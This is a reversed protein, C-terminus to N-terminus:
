EYPEKWIRPIAFHMSPRDGRVDGKWIRCTGCVVHPAWSKDPDGIKMGFYLDYVNAFKTPVKIGHKVQRLYFASDVFTVFNNLLSYSDERYLCQTGSFYLM